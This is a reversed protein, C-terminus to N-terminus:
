GSDCVVACCLAVCCVAWGAGGNRGCVQRVSAELGQQTLVAPDRYKWSAFGIQQQQQQHHHEPSHRISRLLWQGAALPQLSPPLALTRPAARSVQLVCMDMDTYTHVCISRHPRHQCSAAQFSEGRSMTFVYSRV